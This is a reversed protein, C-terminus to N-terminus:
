QQSGRELSPSWRLGLGAGVYVGSKDDQRLKEVDAQIGLQWTRSLPLMLTAEGGATSEPDITLISPQSISFAWRETGLHGRLHFETRDNLLSVGAWGSTDNGVADSTYRIGSALGVSDSPWYYLGPMVQHNWGSERDMSAGEFLVGFRGGARLQYGAGLVAEEEAPFVALGLAEVDVWRSGYRAGAYLENQHTLTSGGSQPPRGPRAMAPPPPESPVDAAIYRYALRLKWADDLQWPLHAFVAAGQWSNQPVSQRLFAFWLEPDVRSEPGALELGRRADAHDAELALAARFNERASARDPEELHAFGRQAYASALGQTSEPGAGPLARARQYWNIAQESDGLQLSLWALRVTVEYGEPTPGWARLMLDRAQEVKGEKELQVSRDWAGARLAYPDPPVSQGPPISQAAATQAVAVSLLAIIGWCATAGGRGLVSNRHCVVQKATGGSEPDTSNRHCVVQKATGGSEPDTANRHCVVQKATGGSEPDTALLRRM